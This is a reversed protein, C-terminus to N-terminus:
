NMSSVRVMFSLNTKMLAKVMVQNALKKHEAGTPGIVSVIKPGRIIVVKAMTSGIDIGV